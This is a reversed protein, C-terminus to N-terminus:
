QKGCYRPLPSFKWHATCLLVPSRSPTRGNAKRPVARSVLGQVASGNRRRGLEVLTMKDGLDRGWEHLIAAGGLM